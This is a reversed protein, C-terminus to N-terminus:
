EPQHEMFAGRGELQDFRKGFNIRLEPHQEAKMILDYQYMVWARCLDEAFHLVSFVIDGSPNTELHLNSNISLHFSVDNERWPDLLALNHMLGCRLQRYIGKIFPQYKSPFYKQMFGIFDAKKTERGLYFGALYDVAALCLIVAALEAKAGLCRDIEGRIDTKIFNGVKMVKYLLPQEVQSGEHAPEDPFDLLYDEPNWKTDTM